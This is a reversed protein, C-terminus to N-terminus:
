KYNNPSKMKLLSGFKHLLPKKKKQLQKSPSNGGDEVMEIIDMSEISNDVKPDLEEEVSEEKEKEKDYSLLEKEGIKLMDWMKVDTKKREEEKEEEEKNHEVNVDEDPQHRPLETGHGNQEYCEVVKTPLEYDDEKESLENNVVQKQTVAEDLSKKLEEIKEVLTAEIRVLENNEDVVSQLENEKEILNEKLRMSEAKTEGIIEKLYVMESEAEKLMNTLRSIETQLSSNADESKKVRNIMDVEKQEWETISDQYGQKNQDITDILMDIEHKAEDLMTQYKENTANLVLRMNEIQNEYNEQETQSLLREKAEKADYAVKELAKALSEMEKNSKEQEDRLVELENILKNKEELLTQVSEAAFKENNLAQNKEEEVNELEYGLSEAKKAMEAAKEKAVSLQRESEELEGRQRTISIELLGVKERLSLIESEADHLADNSGELQKMISELSESASRELRNAEEAQSEFDKVMKQWEEMSKCASKKALKAAELEANLKEICAEKEVLKHEYSKARELDQKLIQIELDLESVMQTNEGDRAELDKISKRASSEALKAEDLEVKLRELCTDKEVLKPEYIKAKELEQKLIQIEQDLSSVMQTRESDRAELDNFKKEWEEMSKCASSEALRAEELEVKLREVFTEKEVEHVKAKELQKGLTEIELNLESLLRTSDDAAENELKSDLLAKLRVVEASLSEMKQADDSNTALQQKVKQLEQIASLLAAADLAQQNRVAELEKQWEEEKKQTSEIAAHEMEIARFKEIESNEEAQKQAAQAERLKENAEDASKQAAKLEEVAQAKEKELLTLKEQVLSLQAQLESGRPVRTQQKDPPATLKPSRRDIPTPKSYLNSRLSRDISPPRANKLPTVPPVDSKPRSLRDIAKTKNSQESVSGSKSLKSSM